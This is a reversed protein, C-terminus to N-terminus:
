DRENPDIEPLDLQLESRQWKDRLLNGGALRNIEDLAKQVLTVDNMLVLYGLKNKRFGIIPICSVDFLRGDSKKTLRGQWRVTERFLARGDFSDRFVDALSLGILASRDRKVIDIFAPNADSIRDDMSATIVAININEFVLECAMPTLTLFQFQQMALTVLLASVVFFISTPDFGGALDVGVVYMVNPIFPMLAATSILVSQGRYIRPRHMSARILLLSGLLTYLYSCAIIQVWFGVGYELQLVLYGDREVLDASSYLLSHMDLTATMVLSCVPIVFILSLVSRSLWREHGAYHIAFLLWSTVACVVGLYVLRQFGLQWALTTGMNAILEGFAWISFSVMVATWLRGMTSKSQNVSIVALAVATIGAVMFLYNIAPFQFDM